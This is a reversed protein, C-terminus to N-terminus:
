GGTVPVPPWMPRFIYWQDPWRTVFGELGHAIMQTAIVLHRDTM